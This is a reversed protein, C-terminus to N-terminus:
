EGDGEGSGDGDDEAPQQPEVDWAGHECSVQTADKPQDALGYPFHEGCLEATKKKRAPM